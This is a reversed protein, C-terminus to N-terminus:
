EIEKKISTQCRGTPVIQKQLVGRWEEESNGLVKDGTGPNGVRLELQDKRQGKTGQEM